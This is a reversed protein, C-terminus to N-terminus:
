ETRRPLWQETVICNAQLTTGILVSRCHPDISSCCCLEQWSSPGWLAGPPMHHGQGHLYIHQRPLDARQARFAVSGGRDAAADRNDVITSLLSQM